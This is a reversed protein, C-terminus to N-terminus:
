KQLCSLDIQNDKAEKIAVLYTRQQGTEEEIIKVERQVNSPIQLEKPSYANKKGDFAIHISPFNIRRFELFVKKMLRNPKDPEITVDYHYATETIKKVDLALYNTEILVKKGLTGPGKNACIPLQPAQQKGSGKQVTTAAMQKTLDSIPESQASQGSLSPQKAPGAQQPQPNRPAQQPQPNQPAQQQPKPQLPGQKQQPKQPKPKSEAAVNGWIPMSQASTPQPMPQASAPQPM